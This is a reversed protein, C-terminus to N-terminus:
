LVGQLVLAGVVLGVLNIPVYAKPLTVIGIICGMTLVWGAIIEM